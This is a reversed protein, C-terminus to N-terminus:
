DMNFACHVTIGYFRYTGGAPTTAAIEIYTGSNDANDYGAAGALPDAVVIKTSYPNAQAATALGNAANALIATIANAVNNAFAMRDIRITHLGLPNTGIQYHVTVDVIKIGKNVVADGSIPNTGDANLGTMLAKIRRMQGNNLPLTIVAANNAAVNVSVDGAANRVLTANSIVSFDSAPIFFAGEPNPTDDALNDGMFRTM